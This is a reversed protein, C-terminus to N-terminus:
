EETGLQNMLMEGLMAGAIRGPDARYTGNEIQNQLEQVKDQRVDPVQELAQQARSIEKAQSSLTVEDGKAVAQPQAKDQDNEEPRNPQNNVQNVYSNLNVAPNNGKIEM